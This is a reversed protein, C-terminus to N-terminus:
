AGCTGGGGGGHVSPEDRRRRWTGARLLRASTEACGAPWLRKVGCRRRNSRANPQVIVSRAGSAPRFVTTKAVECAPRREQVQRGSMRNMTRAQPRLEITSRCSGLSCVLTRNGEGAGVSLVFQGSLKAILKAPD